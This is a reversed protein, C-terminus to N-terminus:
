KESLPVDRFQQHCAECNASIRSFSQQVADTRDAARADSTRLASELKVSAEKSDRLYKQFADPQQQIYDTRLLETFHELMLLAEHAPELDPHNPPSNWEADAILKLHEHTHGIAVMSEAMPPVKTSATFDVKLEELLAVELPKANRVSQFLGRYSPSTGALELVAVAKSRPIFGAGVCAVSAAAPSRHKGHHCHIYIPGDLSRVAKALEKARDSPVGDYGHPLHVYRLGYASATAVDPKMGDVSIITKVGLSRLEKFGNEGEPLGGSIVKPHVLVPNPLSTAAIREPSYGVIRLQETPLENQDHAIDPTNSSCGNFLLLVLLFRSNFMSGQKKRLLFSM